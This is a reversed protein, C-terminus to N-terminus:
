ETRWTDPDPPYAPLAFHRRVAGQRAWHLGAFMKLLFSANRIIYVDSDCVAAAHRDLVGAPLMFSPVPWYVTWIPLAVFLLTAGVAGLRMLWPSDELIEGTFALPDMEELGPLGASAPYLAKLVHCLLERFV